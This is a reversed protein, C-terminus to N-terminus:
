LNDGFQRLLWFGDVEESDASAQVSLFHYGLAETKGKEFIKAEKKQADLLPAVVFQANIDTNLVLERSLLDAKLTGIEIGDMWAAISESRKSLLTVGHIWGTKPMGRIPCLRGKKINDANVQKDWFVEAPLAVFAYSEAKLVDPLRDPQSVDYDLITQQKLQPNYGQMRPYIHDEREQLWMFLNSTRRSPKVEVDITSLAISIMNYMQNRFFRITKPPVPSEEVVDEVVKRLNRSNVLNSALPKLYRFTGESDTILVEWLKKGDDGVVPRSYCDIEWEDSMDEPFVLENPTVYGIEQTIDVMKDTKDQLRMSRQQVLSSGYGAVRGHRGVSFADAGVWLLLLAALHLTQVM